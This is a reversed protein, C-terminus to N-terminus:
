AYVLSVTEAVCAPKVCGEAEVVMESTVRLVTPARREALLLTQTGRVRTGVLVPSPFRVRNFGYNITKTVGDVRFIENRFKVILSLTLLGQIIPGGADLERTARGVDLHIWQHDETVDSFADVRGQTVTTWPSTGLSQGVLSELEDLGDIIRM